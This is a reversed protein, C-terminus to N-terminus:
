EARMARGYERWSGYGQPPKMRFWVKRSLKDYACRMGTIAIDNLIGSMRDDIDEALGSMDISEFLNGFYTKSLYKQFMIRDRSLLAHMTETCMKTGESQAHKPQSGSAM